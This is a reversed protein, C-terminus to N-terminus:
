QLTIGNRKCMVKSFISCSSFNMFITEPTVFTISISTLQTIVTWKTSPCVSQWQARLGVGYARLEGASTSLNKMGGVGGGFFIKDEGM